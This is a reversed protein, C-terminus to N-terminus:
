GHYPKWFESSPTLKETKIIWEALENLKEQIFEESEDKSNEWLYELCEGIGGPHNIFDQKLNQSLYPEGKKDCDGGIAIHSIHWGDKTKKIEYTDEHGWRRSFVKLKM